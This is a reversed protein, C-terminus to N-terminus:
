FFSIDLLGCCLNIHYYHANFPSSPVTFFFLGVSPSLLLVSAFHQKKSLLFTLHLFVFLFSSFPFHCFMKLTKGFFPLYIAFSRCSFKLNGFFSPLLFLPFTTCITCFKVSDWQYSLFGLPIVILTVTIRLTLPRLLTKKGAVWWVLARREKPEDWEGINSPSYSRM